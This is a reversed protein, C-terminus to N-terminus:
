HTIVTGAATQNAGLGDMSDKPCAKGGRCTLSSWEDMAKRSADAKALEERYTRCTKTRVHSGIIPENKCVIRNADRQTLISNITEQANFLEIKADDKMADVSGAQAYLADMEAFKGDITEREGAKVFEFRGGTRMEERVNAAVQSLKERSDANKTAEAPSQAAAAFTLPLLAAMLCGAISSKM